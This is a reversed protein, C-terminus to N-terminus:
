SDISQQIAEVIQPDSPNMRHSFSKVEGESTILYKHFNWRPQGIVSTNGSIWKYLPHASDGKIKQISTLPFNVGYRIECFKKVYEALGYYLRRTRIDFLRIKGDWFGNKYSSTFRANPVEFTFYDNLEAAQSADCDIFIHVDDVKRVRM